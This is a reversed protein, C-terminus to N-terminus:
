GKDWNASLVRFRFMIWCPARRGRAGEEEWRSRLCDERVGGRVSGLDGGGSESGIKDILILGCYPTMDTM